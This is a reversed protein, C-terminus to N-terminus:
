GIWSVRYTGTGSLTALFLNLDDSQFTGDRLDIVLRDGAEIYGRQTAGATTQAVTALRSSASVGGALSVNTPVLMPQNGVLYPSNFTVTIPAANLAGGACTVGGTGISSLAELNTQLTAAAINYACNATTQGQFTFTLNGSTADGGTITQVEQVDATLTAAAGVGVKTLASAYIIAQKAGTPIPIVAEATTLFGSTRGIPRSPINAM